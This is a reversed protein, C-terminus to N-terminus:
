PKYEKYDAWCMNPENGDENEKANQTLSRIGILSGRPFGCEKKRLKFIRVDTKPIHRHCFVEIEEPDTAFDALHIPIEAECEKCKHDYCNCM